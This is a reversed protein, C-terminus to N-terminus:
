LRGNTTLKGFWRFHLMAKLGDWREAWSMKSQGVRRDVFVSPRETVRLGQHEAAAVLLTHSVFGHDMIRAYPLQRLIPVRYAKFSNTVDQTRINLLWRALANSIRHNLQRWLSWGVIKGGRVHRSGVVIDADAIAGLLQPVEAPDHSQDADMNICVDYHHQVAYDFGASIARGLGMKGPRHLVRVRSDSAALQDAVQGTGDPSNDDLILIDTNPVQELIHRCLPAITDRENYTCLFLISRM